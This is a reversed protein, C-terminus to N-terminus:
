INQSLFQKIESKSGKVINVKPSSTETKSNEARELIIEIEGEISNKSNNQLNKVAISANADDMLEKLLVLNVNVTNQDDVSKGNIISIENETFSHGQIKIKCYAVGGLPRSRVVVKRGHNHGLCSDMSYQLANYLVQDLAESKSFIDFSEGLDTDLIIGHKFAKEQMKDLVNNLSSNFNTIDEHVSSDAKLEESKETDQINGITNLKILNDNVRHNETVISEQFGILYEKTKPMNFHDTISVLFETASKDDFKSKLLMEAKNEFYGSEKNVLRQRLFLSILSFTLAFQALLIGILGMSKLDTQKTIESSIIKEANLKLSELEEYKKIINSNSLDMSEAENLKKIKEVKTNFWHLDSNLNNIIKQSKTSSAFLSGISKSVDSFCDGTTSKFSDTLYNSGLDKIMLATFTQTVRQFCIGIGNNTNHLKTFSNSINNNLLTISVLSLLSIACISILTKPKMLLNKM